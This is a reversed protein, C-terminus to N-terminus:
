KLKNGVFEAVTKGEATPLKSKIGKVFLGMNKKVPELTECLEDYAKSIEELSASQPLFEELVKVQSLEIEKLDERGAGSYIEADSKRQKILNRLIGIETAETYVPKGDEGKPTDAGTMYTQISAKVARLADLRSKDQSKLAELILRSLNDILM